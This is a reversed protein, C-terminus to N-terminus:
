APANAKSKWQPVCSEVPAIERKWDRLFSGSHPYERPDQCLGKRVPNMWIYGAVSAANDRERLIHDYFKKQWLALQFRYLYERATKHKINKVFALMDSAPGIGSFLGHFHDPIVCYAHVAIQYHASQERLNEILWAANKSDSFVPRRHACCFTVFYLSQGIYKAAHLRINKHPFPMPNAERRRPM